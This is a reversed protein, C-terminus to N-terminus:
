DYLVTNRLTDILASANQANAVGGVTVTDTATNVEYRSIDQQFQSFSIAAVNNDTNPYARFSVNGYSIKKGDKTISFGKTEKSFNITM